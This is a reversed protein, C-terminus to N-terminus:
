RRAGHEHRFRAAAERRARFRGLLSRRRDSSADNDNYAPITGERLWGEHIAREKCLECVSRRTGGNLYVEAKEGRLLTRGCVDCM